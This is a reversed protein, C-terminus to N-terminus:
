TNPRVLLHPQAEIWKKLRNADGLRSYKGFSDLLVIALRRGEIRTHMVLCRGAESIFGTKSVSIDWDNSKVLPNTNNFQVKRHGLEVTHSQSTSFERILDVKYAAAVMKALDPGSSVNQSSLGTPEVFYSDKMGLSKAKANMAAVFAPLGGPYHRGLSNAARNESAMLALHMMDARSLEAGVPLRSRSNKETDIDENSVQLTENLDLRADTVVLATMLKTISAIPLVANPNKSFLIQKTDVDEVFAVASKLALPDIDNHLGNLQGISNTGKEAKEYRALQVANSQGSSANSSLRPSSKKAPAKKADSKKSHKKAVTAIEAAVAQNDLCISSLLFGACALSALLLHKPQNMVM